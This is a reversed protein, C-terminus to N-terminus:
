RVCDFRFSQYTAGRVPHTSQFKSISMDLIRKGLRVGCPTRPNFNARGIFQPFPVFCDCGARPAHISILAWAAKLAVSMTAGRVPHTSQFSSKLICEIPAFPRVGCPTRPNFNSYTCFRGAASTTAGRVPHTSQFEAPPSHFSTCGSTAGRVPHTSQFELLGLISMKTITAGRVPHTSQFALYNRVLEPCQHTAGRVPHTSQFAAGGCHWARMTYTAGRVPHTSQFIVYFMRVMDTSLTAGRM